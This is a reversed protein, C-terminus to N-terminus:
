LRGAQRPGSGFGSCEPLGGAGGASSDPLSRRVGTTVTSQPGRPGNRPHDPPVSWRSAVLVLRLPM